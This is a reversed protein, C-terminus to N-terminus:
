PSKIGTTSIVERWRETEQKLFAATEVPSTGVPKFSLDRFKKAVDPLQLTEAVALSIKAAIDSPTRPPAVMGLWAASYFGPFTEAVAPTDPLEAIRAAATVALARLKGERVRPLTNGLNDIMMDIHGALLDNMAPGLGPYPVHVMNISAALRLMEVTLHPGSGVGASAFSIKGPNAKAFAILEALTSAPVKPNVVLVFATEAFISVPVFASPDFPLKANFHQSIVLATSPSALLTHGDPDAKAVVQAGLSGAAGARNEIIVPQGWRTALKDALVRPLVDGAPGPSIPVVIRITRNPFTAQSLVATSAAVFFAVAVYVIRLPGKALGWMLVAESARKRLIYRKSWGTDCGRAAQAANGYSYLEM